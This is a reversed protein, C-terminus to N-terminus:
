ADGREWGEFLATLWTPVPNIAWIRVMFLPTGPVVTQHQLALSVTYAELADQKSLNVTTPVFIKQHVLAGLFILQPFTVLHKYTIANFRKTISTPTRFFVMRQTTIAYALIRITIQIVVSLANTLFKYFCTILYWCLISIKKPYLTVGFFTLDLLNVFSFVFPMLVM